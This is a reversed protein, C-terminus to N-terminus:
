CLSHFFCLFANFSLLVFSLFSLFASLVSSVSVVSFVFLSCLQLSAIINWYHELLTGIGWFGLLFRRLVFVFDEFMLVAEYMVLGLGDISVINGFESRKEVVM